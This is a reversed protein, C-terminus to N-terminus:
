FCVLQLIGRTLISNSSLLLGKRNEESEVSMSDFGKNGYSIAGARLFEEPDEDKVPQFWLQIKFRDEPM